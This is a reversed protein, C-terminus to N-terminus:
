PSWMYLFQPAGLDALARIDMNMLNIKDPVTIGTSMHAAAYITDDTSPTATFTVIRAEDLGARTKAESIADDLYGIRDILGAHIAEQSTYVRGDALHKLDDLPIRRSEAILTLFRNYYAGILDQFIAREEPSMKKFPSGMDKKEGSKIVTDEVGIKGLLGEVNFTIMVVGISGIVSTPHAIIADAALATYYAGSTGLDMIAAVIPVHTRAKYSKIEHFLIDSATVTGGPSNIRLIVARIRSDEEARDLAQKLKAVTSPEKRLGKKESTTLPGQIEILLIKNRGEGSLTTEKLPAAGGLLDLSVFACGALGSVSLILVFPLISRFMSPFEAKKNM